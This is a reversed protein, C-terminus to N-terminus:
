SELIWPYGEVEMSLRENEKTELVTWCEEVEYDM